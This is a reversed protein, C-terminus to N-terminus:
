IKIYGTAAILNFFSAVSTSQAGLDWLSILVSTTPTGTDKYMVAYRIDALDAAVSTPDSRWTVNYDITQISKNTLTFGGATYGTGSVEYTSIDSWYQDIERDPSYSSTLLAIKITDSVFDVTDTTVPAGITQKFQNYIFNM